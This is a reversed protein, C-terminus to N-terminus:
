NTAKGQTAAFKEVVSRISEYDEIIGLTMTEKGFKIARHGIFHGAIVDGDPTKEIAPAGSFGSARHIKLRGLWTWDRPLIFIQTRAYAVDLSGRGYFSMKADPLLVQLPELGRVAPVEFRVNEGTLLKGELTVLRAPSNSPKRDLPIAHMAEADTAPRIATDSKAPHYFRKDGRVGHGPAIVYAKGNLSVAFTQYAVEPPRVDPRAQKWRERRQRTLYVPFIYPQLSVGKQSRRSQALLKASLVSLDKILTQSSAPNLAQLRGAADPARYNREFAQLAEELEMQPLVAPVPPALATRENAPSSPDLAHVDGALAAM